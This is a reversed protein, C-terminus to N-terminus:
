GRARGVREDDTMGAGSRGHEREVLGIEDGNEAGIGAAAFRQGM